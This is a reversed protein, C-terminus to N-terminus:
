RLGGGLRELLDDAPSRSPVVRLLRICVSGSGQKTSTPSAPPIFSLVGNLEKRQKLKLRVESRIKKCAEEIIEMLRPMESAAPSATLQHVYICVRAFQNQHFRQIGHFLAMIPEQSRADERWGEPGKLLMVAM